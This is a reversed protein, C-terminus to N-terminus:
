LRGRMSLTLGEPSPRFGFLSLAASAEPAAQRVSMWARYAGDSNVYFELREGGSPSTMVVRAREGDCELTGSLGAGFGVGPVPSSVIPTIKGGGRVCNGNRFLMTVEDLEIAEIPLPAFMREVAIRGNSDKIGRSFGAVLRGELVGDPDDMRDFRMSVTGLLLAAPDLRAEFTGLPQSRLHLEGIRGYWITGGVQRAAFGIRKMDSMGLAARLPFLALMALALIGAFWVLWRRREGHLLVLLRRSM